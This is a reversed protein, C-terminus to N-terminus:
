GQGYISLSAIGHKEVLYENLGAQWAPMDELGIQRLRSNDLVSYAPRTAKAGSEKTSQPSLGPHLDM